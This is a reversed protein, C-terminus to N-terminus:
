GNIYITIHKKGNPYFLWGVISATFPPRHKPWLSENLTEILQMILRIKVPLVFLMFIFHSRVLMLRHMLSQKLERKITGDNKADCIDVTKFVMM